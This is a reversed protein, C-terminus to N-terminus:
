PRITANLTVTPSGTAVSAGCVQMFHWGHSVVSFAGNATITAAQTGTTPVLPTAGISYANLQGDVGRVQLTGTWTGSVTVLVTAQDHAKVTACQTGTLSQSASTANANTLTNQPVATQGLALSAMLLFTCFTLFKKM